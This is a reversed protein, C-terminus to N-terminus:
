SALEKGGFAFVVFHAHKMGLRNIKGPNELSRDRKVAEPAFVTEESGVSDAVVLQVSELAPVPTCADRDIAAPYAAPSRAICPQVRSTLMSWQKSVEKEGAECACPCAARSPGRSGGRLARPAWSAPM